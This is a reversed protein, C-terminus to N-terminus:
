CRGRVPKITNITPALNMQDEVGARGRVEISKHRREASGRTEVTDNNDRGRPPEADNLEAPTEM